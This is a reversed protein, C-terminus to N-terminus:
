MSLVQIASPKVAIEKYSDESLCLFYDIVPADLVKSWTRLTINAESDFDHFKAWDDETCPHVPHDFFEWNGEEDKIDFRAIVRVYKEDYKPLGDTGVVAFAFM